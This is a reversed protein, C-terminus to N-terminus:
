EPMKIILRDMLMRISRLNLTEMKPKKVTGTVKIEVIEKLIARLIEDSINKMRPLQGSKGTLFTLDLKGNETNMSGAGLVSITKGTLHIEKFYLKENKLHYSIAGKNFAADGPITLYLVNLFDLIVPLKYIKAKSILLDGVAQKTSNKGQKGSISIKGGLKGTVQSIKKKDDIGM